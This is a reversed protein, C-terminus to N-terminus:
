KALRRYMAAAFFGLFLVVFLGESATLVRAVDNAPRLDGFGGNAFSIVSLYFAEPWTLRPDGGRWTVVFEAPLWRSLAAFLTVVLTGSAVLNSLRLGYGWRM